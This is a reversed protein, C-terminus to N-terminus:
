VSADARLRRLLGGAVANSVKLGARLKDRSVPRGHAQRHEADLQKAKALLEASVDPRDDPVLSSRGPVTRGSRLVTGHLATLLRPGVESWFILLLPCIADFAARGYEGALVPATVNLGLTVLGTFGLLLRPGLLRDQVGHARLVHIAVLLGVVSLDVAPATLPAIWTPVGLQVGVAWGNGFGFAFTLGATVLVVATVARRVVVAAPGTFTVAPGPQKGDPRSM